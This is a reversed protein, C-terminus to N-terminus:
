KTKTPVVLNTLTDTVGYGGLVTVAGSYAGIVLSGDSPRVTVAKAEYHTTVPGYHGEHTWSECAVPPYSACGALSALFCALFLARTTRM